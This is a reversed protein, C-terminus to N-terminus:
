KNVPYNLILWFFILDGRAQVTQFIKQKGWSNSDTHNYQIYKAFYSTVTVNLIKFWFFMVM